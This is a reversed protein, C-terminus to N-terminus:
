SDLFSPRARKRFIGFLRDVGGLPDFLFEGALADRALGGFLTELAVATAFQGHRTIARRLGPEHPNPRFNGRDMNTIHTSEHGVFSTYVPNVTLERTAGNADMRTEVKTQSVHGSEWSKPAYGPMKATVVSKVPSANATGSSSPRVTISSPKSQQVLTWFGRTKAYEELTAIIEHVQRIESRKEQMHSSSRPYPSANLNAELQAAYRCARWYKEAIEAPDKDPKVYTNAASSSPAAPPM